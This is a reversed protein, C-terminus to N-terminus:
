RVYYTNSGNFTSTYTLQLSSQDTAVGKAHLNATNMRALAEQPTLQVANMKCAMLLAMASLILKTYM